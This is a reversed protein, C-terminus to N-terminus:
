VFMFNSASLRKKKEIKKQFRRFVFIQKIIVMFKILMSDGTKVRIKKKGKHFVVM